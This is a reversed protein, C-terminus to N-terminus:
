QLADQPHRFRCDNLKVISRESNQRAARLGIKEIENLARANHRLEEPIMAMGVDALLGALVALRRDERSWGLGAAISLSLGAAAYCQEPLDEDRRGPLLALQPFVSPHREHWALMEDALAGPEEVRVEVGAALRALISRFRGTRERRLAIVHEPGPWPSAASGEDRAHSATARVRLPLDRWRAELEAVHADANRLLAARRRSEPTLSGAMAAVRRSSVAAEVEVSAGALFLDGWESRAIARCLSETLLTGRSLVMVGARNYLNASLRVGPRLTESDFEAMPEGADPTRAARGPTAIPDPGDRRWRRNPPFWTGARRRHRNSEEPHEFEGDFAAKRGSVGQEDPAHAFLQVPVVKEDGQRELARGEVLVAKEGVEMVDLVQEGVDGPREVM